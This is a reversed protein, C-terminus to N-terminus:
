LSLSDSIEGKERSSNRTHLAQNKTVNDRIAGAKEIEDVLVSFDPIKADWEIMTSALGLNETAWRFLQWVEPSVPADHTDVLYGDQLSHGALHIQGIRERPIKRLYTLPDFGHNVSSVYVNNIDLLIGCDARKAIEALFEWETMESAGFEVYSSLNELLIRRKLFDQARQINEVVTDIAESTYPLPLLDHHNVGQHSTWCLHDSIWLPEAQDALEKLSRLYPARDSGVSGVSLSVGHLAIPINKRIELLHRRSNPKPLENWSLYNETLAEVWQLSPHPNTKFHKFHQPRLGVGLGRDKFLASM